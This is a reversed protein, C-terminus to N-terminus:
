RWQELLEKVALYSKFTLKDTFNLAVPPKPNFCAARSGTRHWAMIVKYPTHQRIYENLSLDTDAVGKALKGNVYFLPGAVAAM